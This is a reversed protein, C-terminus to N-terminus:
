AIGEGESLAPIATELIREFYDLVVETFEAEINFEKLSPVQHFFHLPNACRQMAYDEVAWWEGHTVGSAPQYVHRYEDLLDVEQAMQRVSVGAFTSDVSVEQFQEGWEGGTEAKLADALSKLIEPANEGTRKLLEEVHRRMLKRKGHGYSQYRDFIGEDGQRLMWNLLVHTEILLRSTPSASEGTWLVPNQLLIELARFARTVLGSIVEHRAFHEFGVPAEFSVELFKRYMARVRGVAAEIAEETPLEIEGNREEPLVADELVCPTSARNQEWFSKKWAERPPFWEPHEHADAAKLALFSSRITAEALPRKEVDLPYDRLVDIMERPLRLKGRLLQWAYPPTKTVANLSADAIVKVIAHALLNVAEDPSPVSTSGEWPDVLLWRGPLEDYLSLVGMLDASILRAHGPFDKFAQVVKARDTGAFRELSTLRGDLAGGSEELSSAPLAELVAEQAKRFLAPAEHEEIAALVLPWLLDPLDDRAWESPVMQEYTLLPPTFTKGSKVHGALVGGREVKGQRNKPLGPGGKSLRVSKSLRM